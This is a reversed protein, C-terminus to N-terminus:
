RDVGPIGSVEGTIRFALPSTALAVTVGAIVVQIEDGAVSASISAPLANALAAALQNLAAGALGTLSDAHRGAPDDAWAKLAAPQFRAPTGSRLGLVDGAERVIAGIEGALGPGTQAALEDLILPLAQQVAIDAIRGLGPAEPYLPIDAGSEPRLFVRLDGNLAVHLARRGPAAGPLGAILSLSPLPAGSSRILLGAGITAVLRASVDPPSFGATDIAAALRLDAGHAEASVRVGPALEWEGAPGNIGLLPKVADLLSAVRAPSFGTAGGLAAPHRLFAAPDELLAVPLRIRRAGDTAADGLLGIADLVNDLVDHVTDNLGRLQQFVQRLLEAPLLRVVAQLVADSDPSPWLRIIDPADAARHWELLVEFPASTVRLVAGGAPSDGPTGVAIDASAAGNGDLSLNLSWDLLGHTGASGTLALTLARSALDVSLGPVAALLTDAANQLHPLRSADSLADQ